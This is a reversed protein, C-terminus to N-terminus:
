SANDHLHRHARLWQRWARRFTLMNSKPRGAEDELRKAIEAIPLGAIARSTEIPVYQDHELAKASFGHLNYIWVEPVRMEAFTKLKDTSNTTIDTELLIDPPPTTSRDITSRDNVKSEMNIYWTGDPMFEPGVLPKFTMSGLDTIDMDWEDSVLGLM